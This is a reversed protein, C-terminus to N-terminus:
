SPRIGCSQSDSKGALRYRNRAIIGYGFRALQKLGPVQYLPALWRRGPMRRAIEYVADAGRRVTGNPLVIRLGTSFDTAALQPFQVAVDPSQYPVFEFAQDRDGRRIRDMQRLCFNCAGDYIITCRLPTCRPPM